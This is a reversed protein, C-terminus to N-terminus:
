RRDFVQELSLKVDDGRAIRIDRGLVSGGEDLRWRETLVNGDDDMTEIVLAPGEWGTVRQAEIPGVEVKRNEGFNYEEVVARDYSIFVGYATQTIKLSKGSELFVHASTGKVRRDRRTPRQEEPRPSSRKPIVITQEEVLPIEAGGRLEWNGSLDVGAPNGGPRPLLQPKAACGVLTAAVIAALLFEIRKMRRTNWLLRDVGVKARANPLISVPM